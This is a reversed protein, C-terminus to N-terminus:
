LKKRLSPRRNNRLQLTVYNFVYRILAWKAILEWKLDGQALTKSNRLRSVIKALVEQAPIEFIGRNPRNECWATIGDQNKAIVRRAPFKDEFYSVIIDGVQIDEFDVKELVITDGETLLPEMSHGHFLVKTLPANLLQLERAADLVNVQNM